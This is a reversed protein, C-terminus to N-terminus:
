KIGIDAIDSDTKKIIQEIIEMELEVGTEDDRTTRIWIGTFDKKVNKVNSMKMFYEVGGDSSNFVGNGLSSTANQKHFHLKSVPANAIFSLDYYIISLNYNNGLSRWSIKVTGNKSPRRKALFGDPNQASNLANELRRNKRKSKQKNKLEKRAERVLEDRNIGEGGNNESRNFYQLKSSNKIIMETLSDLDVTRVRQERGVRAGESTFVNTTVVVVTDADPVQKYLTAYNRVEEAGVKNQGTYRKAQILVKQPVPDQKTAEIDIGRDGSGKKVTTQYGQLEWLEAVLEEFKYPDMQQLKRKIEDKSLEDM